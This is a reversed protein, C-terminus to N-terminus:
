YLLSGIIVLICVILIGQAYLYKKTKMLLFFAIFNLLLTGTAMNTPAQSFIIEANSKVFQMTVNNFQSYAFALLLTGMIFGVIGIVLGTLLDTVNNKDM